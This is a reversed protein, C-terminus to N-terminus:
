GNVSGENAESLFVDGSVNCMGEERVASHGGQLHM